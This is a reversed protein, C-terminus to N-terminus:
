CTAKKIEDDLLKPLQQLIKGWVERHALRLLHTEGRADQAGLGAIPVTVDDYAMLWRAIPSELRRAHRIAIVQTLCAAIEDLLYDIHWRM